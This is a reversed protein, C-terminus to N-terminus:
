TGVTALTRGLKTQGSQAARAIERDGIQLKQNEVATTTAQTNQVIQALYPVMAGAVAQAIGDEIQENNAVATRGNAFQGVLEGSNAFFFGDEPFGGTAFGPFNFGISGGIGSFMSGVSSLSEMIKKIGDFIGQFGSLMSDFMAETINAVEGALGEYLKLSNHLLTQIGDNASQVMGQIMTLLNAVEAKMKDEMAPFANDLGQGIGAPIYAGVEDAFLKSPSHIDFAGKFKDIIWDKFSGIKDGLWGFMEKIGNWLGEVIKKGLDFVDKALGTLGDVISKVFGGAADVGKKIFDEAFKIASDLTEKFKEGVNKVIEVVGDWLGKFFGVIADWTTHAIDKITNWIGSVLDKIGNWVKDWLDTLGDWLGKFFESVAEWVTHAAESIGNWIGQLLDSLFSWATNWVETIGDWLGSLFGTIGEWITHAAEVIANWIGTVTEKITNWVSDWIASLTDWLGTFFEVVAGWISRATEGVTNWIGTVVEVITNWITSWLGSLTDWLGGLFDRIGGWVSSATESISTWLGGLFESIFNWVTQATEKIGDWLGAFFGVLGDWIEHAKTSIGDWIGGLFESIANWVNQVTESIGTWLNGFFETLGEWVEHAKAGISEWVGFLFETVTNWTESFVSVVTDWATSFFGVIVNWTDSIGQLLGEIINLGIEAFVTSPSHIGLHYKVWDVIPDVIHEKIWAGIGTIADGIGTFIGGIINLGIDNFAAGIGKFVGGIAEVIAEVIAFALGVIAVLLDPIHTILSELLGIIAQVLASIVESWDIDSIAETAFLVISTLLTMIIDGVKKWDIGKFVEFLKNVWEGVKKGIDVALGAWDINGITELIGNISGVAKEVDGGSAILAVAAAAIGGVLVVGIASSLGTAVTGLASFAGSLKSSIKGLVPFKELLAGVGDGIKSQIGGFVSGLKDLATSVGPIDHVLKNLKTGFKGLIEGTKEAVGLDSIKDKLSSLMSLPGPINLQKIMVLFSLFKAVGDSVFAAFKFAAIAKAIDLIIDAIDDASANNLFELLKDIFGQFTDSNVFKMVAEAIKLIAKAIGMLIKEVMEPTIRKMFSAINDLFDNFVKSQTFEAIAQGLDDIFRVIGEGVSEALQEFAEFLEGIKKRLGQWDMAEVFHEFAENLMPLGKEVIWKIYPLVVKNILDEFVGGIFDAVPKLSNILKEFSDLLPTFDLESGWEKFAVGVNRVHELLIDVIGTIDEFIRDGFELATWAEHINKAINGFGEIIDGIFYMIQPFAKEIAYEILDLVLKAVDEFVWGIQDVAYEIQQLVKLLAEFLPVFTLRASWEIMYQTINRIHTAIVLLIDRITELIRQGLKNYNWAEDIQHLINGIIRSIDGIIKLITEILKVTASQNWVDIFTNIIDGLLKLLQSLLYRLGSLVYDKIKDWAAKLPALLSDILERIREALEKIFDPIQKASIEEWDFPDEIEFGSSSQTDNLINLEDVGLTLQKAAKSAKNLADTYDVIKKKAITFSSAGTLATLFMNVKNAVNVFADALKDIIPVVVNIVPEFAAVISAGVYRFDSTLLSMSSNFSTGISQSFRALSQLAEGMTDYIATFTKRFGMYVFTRVLKNWKKQISDIADGAKKKFDSFVKTIPKFAMAMGSGIRMAITKFAEFQLTILKLPTLSGKFARIAIDGFKDMLQSVKELEHQLAIIGATFELTDKKGEAVNGSPGKGELEKIRASVQEYEKITDLYQDDTFNLKNGKMDSLLSQLERLRAYLKEIENVPETVDIELKYPDKLNAYFKKLKDETEDLMSQAKQMSPIDFSMKEAATASFAAKLKNAAHTLASMESEADGFRMMEQNVAEVESLVEKWTTTDPAKVKVPESSSAENLKKITSNITDVAEQAAASFKKVSETAGSFAGDAAQKLEEVKETVSQVNEDAGNFGNSIKEKITEAADSNVEFASELASKIPEIKEEIESVDPVMDEITKDIGAGGKAMQIIEQSYYSTASELEQMSTLGAKLADNFSMSEVRAQKVYEVLERFGDAINSTDFSTNAVENLDRLWTDFGMGSKANAAFASGLTARMSSFADAFESKIDGLDIKINGSKNTAAIFDLVAKESEDAEVKVKGFEKIINELSARASNADSLLGDFYEDPASDPASHFKEMANYMDTMSKKVADIGERSRIGFADSLEKAMRSIAANTKESSRELGDGVHSLVGNAKQAAAAVSDLSKSVKGFKDPNIKEIDSSLRNIAKATTNGVSSLISLSDSVSDLVSEIRELAGIVDDLEGTAKKASAEIKVEVESM